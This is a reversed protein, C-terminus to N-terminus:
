EIKSYLVDDAIRHEIESSTVLGVFRNEEDLVVAADKNVNRLKRLVDTLGDDQKVTLCICIERYVYLFDDEELANRFKEIKEYSFERRQGRDDPEKFEDLTLLCLFDGSERKIELYELSSLRKMYRRIAESTYYRKRGAIFSLRKTRRIQEDTLTDLYRVSEKEGGILEILADTAILSLTRVPSKLRSELEIGFGKFKHIYGGAILAFLLPIGAVFLWQTNLQLVTSGIYQLVAFVALLLLSIGSGVVLLNHKQWVKNM